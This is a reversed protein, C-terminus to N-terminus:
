HKLNAGGTIALARPARNQQIAIVMRYGTAERPSAAGFSLLAGALVRSAPTARRM